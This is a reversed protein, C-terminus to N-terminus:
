IVADNHLGSVNQHSRVICRSLHSRSAIQAGTWLITDELVVDSEILCDPGIVTCGALKANSAIKSTKDVAAPWQSDKLFYPRWKDSLISRHVRLYDATSGVNFWRGEDLITGGIKGNQGIWDKLVPIFSIKQSPPIRSFIEPNWVAVNAFDYNGPVGYKNGIDVIRGDKLAIDSALGTNRVGLTVDNGYRLHEEILTELRIDSLIDGSYTIFPGNGLFPEANKIGGGTELLVPEHVLRLPYGCYKGTGFYETFQDALRHTNIVFSSVGVSILH